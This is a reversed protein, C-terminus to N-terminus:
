LNNNYFYKKIKGVLMSDPHSPKGPIRCYDECWSLPLKSNAESATRSVFGSPDYLVKMSLDEVRSSRQEICYAAYRFYSDNFKFDYPWIDKGIAWYFLPSNYFYCWLKSPDPDAQVAKLDQPTRFTVNRSLEHFVAGQDALIKGFRAEWVLADSYDGLGYLYMERRSKYDRILFDPNLCFNSGDIAFCIDQSGDLHYQGHYYIYYDNCYKGNIMSGVAKSKDVLLSIRDDSSDYDKGCLNDPVTACLRYGYRAAFVVKDPDNLLVNSILDLDITINEPITDGKVYKKKNLFHDQLFFTHVPKKIAGEAVLRTYDMIGGQNMCWNRRKIMIFNKITFKLRYMYDICISLENAPDDSCDIFIIRDLLPDFNNLNSFGEWFVNSKNRNIVVIDFRIV